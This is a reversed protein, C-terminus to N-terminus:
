ITSAVKAFNPWPAPLISNSVCFSTNILIFTIVYM